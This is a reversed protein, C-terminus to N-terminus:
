RRTRFERGGHITPSESVSTSLLDLDLRGVRKSKLSRYLSTRSQRETMTGTREPVVYKQKRKWRSSEEKWLYIAIDHGRYGDYLVAAKWWGDSKFITRGEIVDLDDHVPFEDTM